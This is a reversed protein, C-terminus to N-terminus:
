LHTDEEPKDGGHGCSFGVAEARCDPPPGVHRWLDLIGNREMIELFRPDRRMEALQNLWSM